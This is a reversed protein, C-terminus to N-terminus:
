AQTKAAWTTPTLEAVRQILTNALGPLIDALYERVPIKLRRCSEVVSLIAAIKPGAEQSGIHIWNKRGLAVGRMSNEALNNSLELQPHDLFCTLKKWLALTYNCAQGAKSRPLVTKSTALIHDRIQDLLPPAKKRRLLHRAAHDMNEERAEADILFLSDMLEVARISGADQKNLKVADVFHRRSHSWCCAHVMKPGGLGREYAIYDDTQLIGEFNGLFRAPGERGRSMRFDFVVGGGPTGYQWLYAQHNKGRKDHTQVDVPTEDAQIYDSALLEKRMADVVPALMEGVAMVWGCMTARSLEVGADRLLIASQRYLPCHNAYKSVITDIIVQDSVLSKEIIRPPLPAMAVGQEECKRCARKERKIVEVYYEAPKVNLVESEEYGIVITEKGCKGCVCQGATCAVIKEVRPLDAPLTQRGPHARRQRKKEDSPGPLVERGSEAQVEQSSVGPEEELLQLQLDSLKESGPGYKAIRRLRLHEELVRIKLRAYELEKTAVDLQQKLQANIEALFAESHPPLTPESSTSM